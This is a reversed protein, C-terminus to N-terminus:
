RYLPHPRCCPRSWRCSASRASNDPPPLFASCPSSRPRFRARFRDPLPSCSRRDARSARACTPLLWVRISCTNLAGHCSYRWDGCFRFAFPGLDHAEGINGRCLNLRDHRFRVATIDADTYAHLVAAAGPHAVRHIVGFGDAREIFHDFVLADADEDVGLRHHEKDAGLHVVLAVLKRGAEHEVIGILRFGAAAAFRHHDLRRRVFGILTLRSRYRYGACAILLGENENVVKNRGGRKAAYLCIDARRIFDEASENLDYQAVGISITIVGLIDGTSKKVLKKSEVKARIQNALNDAADIETQPLIVAFEEGGFRAATDRGKVNESLCNAVLRLVQDGTQHGWTDNFTKFRDIDCMMLSLGEGSEIALQINEQLKIDFAKRNPIATLQDTLSERRVSELRERLENVERSSTQLQVELAKSRTEMSRTASIVQDILTKIAAEPLNSHGLEGSAASLTRGYASHDRGAMELVQLVSDLETTMKEGIEAVADNDKNSRFYRQHLISMVNADFKCGNAILADLTRKVEAHEGSVFSYALEFNEPTPSSTAARRLCPM